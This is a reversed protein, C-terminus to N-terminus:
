QENLIREATQLASARYIDAVTTKAKKAAKQIQKHESPVIRINWMKKVEPEM